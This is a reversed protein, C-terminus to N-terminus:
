DNQLTFPQCSGETKKAMTLDYFKRLATMGNNNLIFKPHEKHPAQADNVGKFSVENVKIKAAAAGDGLDVAFYQLFYYTKTSVKKYFDQEVDSAIFGEGGTAHCNRCQSTPSTTPVTGWAKMNAIQFNEMTMCGAFESLVRKTAAALSETDTPAPTTQGNRLELEKNLWATIKTEEDSSWTMANHGGAKIKTLIPAVTSAFNGVLARYNSAVQWGRAADTAVFRTLTASAANEAHCAGNGCKRILPFVNQDFLQKAATLDSGAPNDGNDNGDGDPSDLPDPSPLPDPTGSELGGVCGVLSATAITALFISRM